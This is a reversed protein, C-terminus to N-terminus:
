WAGWQVDVRGSVYVFIHSLTSILVLTIALMNEWIIKRIKEGESLRRPNVFEFTDDDDAENVSLHVSDASAVSDIPGNGSSFLRETRENNREQMSLNM